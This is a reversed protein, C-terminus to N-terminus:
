LAKKSVPLLITFITGKEQSTTFSVKGGLLNEGILKMSFTGIGRGNQEKTTFNRQFIRQAINPPIYGDNWVHFCVADERLEDWIKIAHGDITAELANISM